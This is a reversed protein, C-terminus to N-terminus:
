QYIINPLKAKILKTTEFFGVPLFFFQLPSTPLPSSAVVIERGPEEQNKRNRQIHALKKCNKNNIEELKEPTKERKM